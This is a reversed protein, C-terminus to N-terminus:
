NKPPENLKDQIDKRLNEITSFAETLRPTKGIKLLRHFLSISEDVITLAEQYNGLQYLADAKSSLAYAIRDIFEDDGQQILQQWIGIAQNYYYLTQKLRKPTPILMLVEGYTYTAAAIDDEAGLLDFTDIAENICEGAQLENGLHGLAYGKNVLTTARGLSQSAPQENYAAADEYAAISADYLPLAEKFQHLDALAAGKNNLAVAVLEAMSGPNQGSKQSAELAEECCKLATDYLGVSACLKGKNTLGSIYKALDDNNSDSQNRQKM